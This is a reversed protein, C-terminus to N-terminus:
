DSNQKTPSKISQGSSNKMTDIISDEINQEEVALNGANNMAKRSKSILGNKVEIGVSLTVLILLIIITIILSILTIGRNQKKFTEKKFNM